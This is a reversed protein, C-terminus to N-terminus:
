AGGNKILDAGKEAIMLTSAYTNASPIMPMVSADVVRLGALGHVRLQPDVVAKANSAPGMSCTGVLHYGTNGTQRAFDLLQEDTQAQSGPVAEEAFFPALQPTQLFERAMRVARVVVAQDKQASLFNPQIVPDAEPDPSTIRVFGVSEPREQTFGCTIAPFDDLVYVRGPKYSGPTCVFQIDPQELASDSKWFVHLVSPSLALVSPRGAAWKLIEVALRWGKAQQNLSIVGEKLRAALRVFYHDRFNEGVGPLEHLVPVALSQLLPGPGIGSVQLLRTSNITGASLIVERRAYLNKEASERGSARYRVGVARKGELLIRNVRVNTRVSVNSRQMAPRLFARAASIRKGNHIMRQFYGVGAQSEANYDNSRPIGKAVVGEIFAECLPHTWGPDSIVIGGDRGRYKDDGGIRRESKRFYPLVDDYGWGINGLQAWHNFDDAQGRNYVLGNLSSSGGMVKGQPLAIARGATGASPQSKFTWTLAPNVLTKVYGAPIHLFPNTDAPGAELVCITNKGDASLREALVSGASGGGIIVYDFTENEM